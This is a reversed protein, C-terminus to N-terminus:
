PAPNASTRAETALAAAAPALHVALLAGFVVISRAYFKATEYEPLSTAIRNMPVVNCGPLGFNVAYMVESGARPVRFCSSPVTM